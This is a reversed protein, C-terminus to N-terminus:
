KSGDCLIKRLIIIKCAFLQFIHTTRLNDNKNLRSKNQFKMAPNITQKHQFIKADLYLKKLKKNTNQDELLSLKKFYEYKTQQAQRIM